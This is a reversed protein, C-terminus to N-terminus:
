FKKFAAWSSNTEAASEVADPLNVFFDFGTWKEVQDVSVAYKEYDNDSYNQHVFWFGITSASTVTGSSNTKVKLVLKYFYNPVPVKQSSDKSPTAYKITLNEGPKNFTVGTVVYIEGYSSAVSRVANELDNWISGNFKDQLQPVQNTVYFAQKQMTSNGARSSNPCMHGRSYGNSYSGSAVHAQKDEDIRPNYSWGPRSSSGFYSSSLPYATWLSTMMETDYFHTYNRVGGVEFYNVVYQSGERGSPLELWDKDIAPKGDGASGSGSGGDDSGGDDGSGDDGSGSGGDDGSGGDGSDSGGDDGSGGDGGDGSDSGGDDGSGSDSGGANHTVTMTAMSGTGSVSLVIKQSNGTWTLAGGSISLYGCDAKVKEGGFTKGGVTTSFESITSGSPVSITMTYGGYLRIESNKIYGKNECNGSSVAITVNGRTGSLSVTSSETLGNYSTGFLENWNSVTTSGVEPEVPDVPEDPKGVEATIPYIKGAEFNADKDLKWSQEEGNVSLKLTSGAAATHQKVAIYFKASSGGPIAEGGSVSLTATNSVDEAGTATYAPAEGTFDIYYTGVIDETSTFSIESVTLAEDGANHIEACVASVLQKMEFSPTADAKVAKAVGYLPSGAASLHAASNNGTQTQVKGGILTGGFVETSVGAPSKNALSYPYFAYWDYTGDAEPEAKLEGSFRGNLAADIQFKGDSIYATADAEAHFINLADTEAWAARFGDDASQSILAAVEFPTGQPDDTQPASQKACGALMLVASLALAFSATIKKM